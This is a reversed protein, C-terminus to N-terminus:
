RPESDQRRPARSASADKAPILLLASLALSGGLAVMNLVADTADYTGLHHVHYSFHLSSFTFTTAAAILVAMRELSVAAILNVVFLALYIAGVDRILHENYPGDVDIWHRGFGPFSDYFSQPAFAAWPGTVAGTAALALLMVRQTFTTM